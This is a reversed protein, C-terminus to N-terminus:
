DRVGFERKCIGGVKTPHLKLNPREPSFFPLLQLEVRSFDTTDGSM